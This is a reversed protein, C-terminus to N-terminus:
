VFLCSTQLCLGSWAQSFTGVHGAERPPRRAARTVVDFDEYDHLAETTWICICCHAGCLFALLLGVIGWSGTGM